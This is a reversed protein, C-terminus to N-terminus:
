KTKLEKDFAWYAELDAWNMSQKAAVSKSTKQLLQPSLPVDATMVQECKQRKLEEENEDQQWISMKYAELDAPSPWTM